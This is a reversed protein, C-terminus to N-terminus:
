FLIALAWNAVERSPASLLLVSAALAAWAGWVAASSGARADLEISSDIEEDGVLPELAKRLAREHAKPMHRFRVAVKTKSGHGAEPSWQDVSEVRVVTAFCAIQARGPPTFEIKIPDGEEPRDTAEADDPLFFSLGSRSLDMAQTVRASGRSGMAAFRMWAQEDAQFVFRPARAIWRNVSM